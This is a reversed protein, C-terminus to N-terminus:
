TYVLLKIFFRPNSARPDGGNGTRGVTLVRTESIRSDLSWELVALLALRRSLFTARRRGAPAVVHRGPPVRLPPVLPFRSRLLVSLRRGGRLAVMLVLRLTTLLGPRSVRLRSPRYSQAMGRWAEGLFAPGYGAFAQGCLTAVVLVWLVPFRGCILGAVVYGVGRPTM